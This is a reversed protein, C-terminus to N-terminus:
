SNTKTGIITISSHTLNKTKTSNYLFQTFMISGCGWRMKGVNSYGKELLHNSLSYM